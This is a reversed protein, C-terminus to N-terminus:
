RSWICFSRALCSDTLVLMSNVIKVVGVFGITIPIVRWEGLIRMRWCYVMQATFAIIADLLPGSISSLHLQGLEAPDGFHYVFWFFIDSMILCTQVTDVLFIFHVLWPNKRYHLSLHLNLNGIAQLWKRDRGCNNVYLVINFTFLPPLSRRQLPSMRYQVMLIGYLWWSLVVGILQLDMDHLPSDDSALWSVPPGTRDICKILSHSRFLLFLLSM